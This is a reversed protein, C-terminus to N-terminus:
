AACRSATTALMEVWRAPLHAFTNAYRAKAASAMAAYRSPNELLAILREAASGPDRLNWFIGEVGDRFIEPIGGVPAALVPRGYSLGEILTIPCNELQAAHALVRYEPILRAADSCFGHFHVQERLSLEARLQELKRRDPGDGVLTLSYHAGSDRAKALVQLLFAQNKRPELTGISIIDGKSEVSPREVPKPPFNMITEQPVRAIEPLRANVIRRMYQSVFIIKSVRPLVTREIHDLDRCWPGARRAVGKDLVESSESGNYHVVLIVRWDPSNQAVNLAGRASMPCQAYITTPEPSQRRLAALQAEILWGQAARYLVKAREPRQNKLPRFFARLWRPGTYPTVLRTRHGLGAATQLIENLHTEVGTTGRGGLMTTVVLLPWM